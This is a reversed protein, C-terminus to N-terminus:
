KNGSAKIEEAAKIIEDASKGGLAKLLAKEGEDESKASMMEKLSILVLSGAFEKQKEEPLAKMIKEVSAEMAARNSGDIKDGGCGALMFVAACVLIFKKM